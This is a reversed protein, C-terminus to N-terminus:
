LRVVFRSMIIIAAPMRVNDWIQYLRDTEQMTEKLDWWRVLEVSQRSDLNQRYARNFALLDSVLSRDPFRQCDFLPPADVLEQHRRQLLKVDSVFDESRTLVYRVERPDLIELQLAVSQLAPAVRSFLDPTATQDLHESPSTLLAVALAFEIPYM